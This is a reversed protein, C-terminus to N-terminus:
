VVIATMTCKGNSFKQSDVKFKTGFLTFSSDKGFPTFKTTKAKATIRRGRTKTVSFNFGQLEFSQGESPMRVIITEM